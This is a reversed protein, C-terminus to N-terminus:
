SSILCLWSAYIIPKASAPSRPLVSVMYQTEIGTGKQPFYAIPNPAFANRNSGRWVSTAFPEVPGFLWFNVFPVDLKSAMVQLLCHEWIPARLTPDAARTTSNCQACPSLAPHYASAVLVRPLAPHERGEALSAQIAPVLGISALVSSAFCLSKTSARGFHQNFPDQYNPFDYAYAGACMPENNGGASAGPQVGAVGFVGSLSAGRKIPQQLLPYVCQVLVM